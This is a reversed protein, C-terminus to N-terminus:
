SSLPAAGMQQLGELDIATFYTGGACKILVVVPLGFLRDPVMARHPSDWFYRSFFLGFSYAPHGLILVLSTIIIWSLGTYWRM